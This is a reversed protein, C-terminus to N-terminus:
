RLAYPRSVAGSDATSSFARATGNLHNPLHCFRFEGGPGTTTDRVRQVRRLGISTAVQMDVWSLTVTAHAKPEETEADLVRGVIVSPGIGNMTDIQINGCVLHIFSIASPVGIVVELASDATVTLPMTAISLALSDLLPHFIGIRYKGPPVSDIRFRGNSDTMALVNLGEVSVQAGALTGGNLSDVVLGAIVGYGSAPATPRASAPAAPAAPTQGFASRAM